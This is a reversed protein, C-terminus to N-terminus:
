LLGEPLFELVRRVMLAGFALLGALGVWKLRSRWKPSVNVPATLEALVLFGVLSGIFFVELTVEGLVALVLVTGLMWAVQGYVFRQPRRTAM